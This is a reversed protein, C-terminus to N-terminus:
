IRLANLQIHVSYMDIEVRIEHREIDEVKKTEKHEKYVSLIDKTERDRDKVM